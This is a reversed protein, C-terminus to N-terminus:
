WLEITDQIVMEEEILAEDSEITIPAAVEIEEVAV